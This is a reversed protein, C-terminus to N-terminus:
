GLKQHSSTGSPRSLKREMSVRQQFVTSHPFCRTSATSPVGLHFRDASQLIGTKKLVPPSWRGFGGGGVGWLQWKKLGQADGVEGVVKQRKRAAGSLGLKKKAGCASTEAVGGFTPGSQNAVSELPMNGLDNGRPFPLYHGRNGIKMGKRNRPARNVPIIKVAM